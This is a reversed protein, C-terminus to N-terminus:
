QKGNQTSTTSTSKSPQRGGSVTHQRGGGGVNSANSSSASVQGSGSSNATTERSGSPGDRRPMALEPPQTQFLPTTTATSSDPRESNAEIDELRLGVAIGILL